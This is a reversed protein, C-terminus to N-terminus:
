WNVWREPIVEYMQTYHEETSLNWEYKRFFADAVDAPPAGMERASCECVVPDSGDELAVIVRPNHRMNNAKESNPGTSIYFRGDLWVYWMPVLHPLNEPRVSALWIVKSTELRQITEPSLDEPM